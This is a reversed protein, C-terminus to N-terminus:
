SQISELASIAKGNAKYVDEKSLCFKAHRSSLVLISFIQASSLSPSWSKYYKSYIKLHSENKAKFNFNRTTEM